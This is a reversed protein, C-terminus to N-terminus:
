SNFLALLKRVLDKHKGELTFTCGDSEHLYVRGDEGIVCAYLTVRLGSGTLLDISAPQRYGATVPVDVRGEATRIGRGLSAPVETDYKPLTRFHDACAVVACEWCLRDGRYSVTAPVAQGEMLHHACPGAAASTDDPM